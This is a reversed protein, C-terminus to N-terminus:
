LDTLDRRDEDIPNNFDERVTFQGEDVGIQRRDSPPIPVLRAVPIGRRSITIEEGAAVRRMLHSFYTRAENLAIYKM